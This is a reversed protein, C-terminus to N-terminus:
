DPRFEIRRPGCARSDRLDGRCLDLLLLHKFALEFLLSVSHLGKRAFSSGQPYFEILRSAFASLSHPNSLRRPDFL